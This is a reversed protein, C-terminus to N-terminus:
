FLTMTGFPLLRQVFVSIKVHNSSELGSRLRVFPAQHRQERKLGESSFKVRLVKAPVLAVRRRHTIALASVETSVNTGGHACLRQRRM